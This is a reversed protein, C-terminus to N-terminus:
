RGGAEGPSNLIGRFVMDAFADAIEASHLRGSPSYWRHLSDCLGLIALATIKVDLPRFEGGAVGEELIREFLATYRKRGARVRELHEGALAHVERVFITVMGLNETLVAVHSRIAQTLKQRASGPGRAIEELRGALSATALDFIRLLLEEKSNIYHYLSGKQLGVADALDQVSTAHFGKQQFLRM